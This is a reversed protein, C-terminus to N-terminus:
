RTSLACPAIVPENINSLAKAQVLYKYFVLIAASTPCTSQHVADNRFAGSRRLATAFSKDQQMIHAGVEPKRQM